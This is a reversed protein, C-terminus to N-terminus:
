TRGHSNDEIPRLDRWRFDMTSDDDFKVRYLADDRDDGSVNSVADEIVAVVDGRRDHFEHFDPDDRDPIDVRVRDGKTFRPM